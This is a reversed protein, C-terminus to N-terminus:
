DDEWSSRESLHLDAAEVRVTLDKSVELARAPAEYGVKWILLEYSGPAVALIARGSEDTSARYVGLSVEANPVPVTSGGQGGEEGGGGEVGEEGKVVEVVEVTLQHEPPKTTAFGFGASAERHPLELDAAQFGVSWSVVGEGAPAVLEVEAWYLADSGPWLTEGFEATALRDGSGDYVEIRRGQLDCEEACKAGIKVMFPDGVVAPSPVDWIALSTRHAETRFPLALSTGAHAPPESAQPQSSQPQSAQAEGAQPRFLVSWEHEGVQSPARLTVESTENIGQDSSVLESTLIPPGEPATVVVEAGRLDCGFPCTVRVQLTLEAGAAVESPFWRSVELRPEHVAREDTM